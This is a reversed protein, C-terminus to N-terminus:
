DLRESIDLIISILSGLEFLGAAVLRAKWIILLPVRRRVPCSPEHFGDDCGDM